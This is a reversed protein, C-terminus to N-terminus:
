RRYPRKREWATRVIEGLETFLVSFKPKWGFEWCIRLSRFGSRGAEYM